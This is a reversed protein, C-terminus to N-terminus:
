DSDPNIRRSVNIVTWTRAPVAIRLGTLVHRLFFRLVLSVTRGITLIALLFVSKYRAVFESRPSKGGSKPQSEFM